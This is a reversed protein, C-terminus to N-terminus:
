FIVETIVGNLLGMQTLPKKHKPYFHHALTVIADDYGFVLEDPTLTIFPKHNGMNLIFSITKQIMYGLSNSQTSLAMLPVNLVTLKEQNSISLEPVFQLIKRHQFTVTGNNQFKINIKEM